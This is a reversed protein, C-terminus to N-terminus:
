TAAGAGRLLVALRECLETLPSAAACWRISPRNIPLPMHRTMSTEAHRGTGRALYRCRGQPVPRTPWDQLGQARPRDNAVHLRNAAARWDGPRASGSRDMRWRAM